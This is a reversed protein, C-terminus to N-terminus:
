LSWSITVHLHTMTDAESLTTQPKLLGLKFAGGIVCQFVASFVCMRVCIYIYTVIVAGYGGLSHARLTAKRVKNFSSTPREVMM